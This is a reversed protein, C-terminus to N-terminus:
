QSVMVSTMIPFNQGVNGFAMSYFFNINFILCKPMLSYRLIDMLGM